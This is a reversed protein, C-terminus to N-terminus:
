AWWVGLGLGGSDPLLNDAGDPGSVVTDPRKAVKVVLRKAGQTRAFGFVVDGEALPEYDAEAFFDANDRRLTLLTKLLKIKPQADYEQDRKGELWARRRDFDVPRRNDPDVLSLDWSETGQYVDPFGPVTCKLVLQAFSNHRAQPQIRRLLGRLAESLERDDMIRAALDKVATEYDTDPEAWDSFEKGERLAKELYRDVRDRLNAADESRDLPYSAILSQIVLYWSRPKLAGTGIRNRLRNVFREWEGPHFTLAQLRARSDEGRKTDHTATANMSSKGRALIFKHFARITVRDAPAASSGVENLHAQRWYQYFTTDEVGKAMLPGSLQQSRQLTELAEDQFDQASLWGVFRLVQRGYKPAYKSVTLAAEQCHRLEEETLPGGGPYIRYHPFGALFHTLTERFDHEWVEEPLVEKWRRLLNAVEGRFHEEVLMLKNRFVLESYEPLPEGTLREYLDSFTTASEDNTLLRNVAALFDYGTTGQVPWDAPLKEGPELIKEVWIGVDEGVEKRLKQLYATPNLLGDVHDLRLHQIRGARIEALIKEHADAFVKEDEVRIGLLSNVTFFRRYNLHEDVEKWHTAKYVTEGNELTPWASLDGGGDHLVPLMMKGDFDPHDWDVDFHRYYDSDKGKTYLDRLWANDPHLTLHNPVIDQLWHMGREALRRHLEAWDKETTIEPNLRSPDTGDYGHTSGPAAALIPSAYCTDVGLEDLYDLQKLLDSVTFGEHLQLRYTATPQTM